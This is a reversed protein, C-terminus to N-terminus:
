RELEALFALNCKDAVSAPRSKYGFRQEGEIRAQRAEDITEYHGLNIQKGKYTIYARYKGKKTKSVGTVGCRNVRRLSMNLTNEYPSVFRLNTIRNDKKDRNIHDVFMGEPKHNAHFAMVFDHLRINEGAIRSIAYGQSDECWLRDAIINAIDSDVIMADMKNSQCVAFNGYDTVRM